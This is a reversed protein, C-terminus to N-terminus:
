HCCRLLSRKMRDVFSLTLHPGSVCSPPPPFPAVKAPSPSGFILNNSSHSGNHYGNHGNSNGPYALHHHSHQSQISKRYSFLKQQPTPSLLSQLIEYQDEDSPSIVGASLSDDHSNSSSPTPCSSISFSKPPKNPTQNM